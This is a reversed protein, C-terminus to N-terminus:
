GSGTNAIMKEFETRTLFTHFDVRDARKQVREVEHSSVTRKLLSITDRMENKLSLISEKLDKVRKELDELHIGYVKKDEESTDKLSIVRNNYERSKTDLLEIRKNVRSSQDNEVM